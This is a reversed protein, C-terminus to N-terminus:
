FLADCFINEAKKFRIGQVYPVRIRGKTPLAHDARADQEQMGVLYCLNGVSHIMFFRIGCIWCSTFVTQKVM